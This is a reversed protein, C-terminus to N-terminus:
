LWDEEEVAQIIEPIVGLESFATMKNIVRPAVGVFKEM